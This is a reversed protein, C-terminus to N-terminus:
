WKYVKFNHGGRKKKKKKKFDHGGEKGMIISIFLISYRVFNMACQKPNKMVNHSKLIKDGM